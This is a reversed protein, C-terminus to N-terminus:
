LVLAVRLDNVNTGTPGTILIDGISELAPKANHTELTENVDLGKKRLREVTKGDVIGGAAETPGDTGDTDVAAVVANEIDRMKQAAGLVFEQNPGGEGRKEGMTVTTEGGSILLCPPEIPTKSRIIDRIIGGIVVGAERSEGEIMRSLILTQFGLSKGKEAAAETVTDNSSVIVNSIDMDSFDKPKLTEEYNRGELNENVSKPVKKKLSYRELVNRADEFTTEDPATPGSSIVELDDGVVDSVILSVGKAPDIASLLKGGKIRSIHKRVSNIEDISAGCSVLLDTTKRIEELGIGQTPSCLLASGGGSILNIVLDHEGAGKAMKLIEKGAKLGNEDPIPHGAEVVDIRDLEKGGYGYKTVIKGRAIRNRLISEIKEAMRYSAKGGGIIWIDKIESLDITEKLIELRGESLNVCTEIAKKPDASRIGEELVKLANRRGKRPQTDLIESENKFISPMTM